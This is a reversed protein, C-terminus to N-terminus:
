REGGPAAPLPREVAGDRLRRELEALLHPRAGAAWGEVFRRREGGLWSLLGLQGERALAALDRGCREAERAARWLEQGAVEPEGAEAWREAAEAFLGALERNRERLAAPRPAAPRPMGWALGSARVRRAFLRWDPATGHFLPGSFPEGRRSALERRDSPTLELVAGLLAGVGAAALRALDEEWSEPEEGLGPALPWLAVGGAPLPGPPWPLDGTLVPLLDWVPIVGEPIAAGAAPAAQWIV